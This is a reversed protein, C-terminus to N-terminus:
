KKKQAAAPDTPTQIKEISSDGILLKDGQKEVTYRVLYTDEAERLMKSTPEDYLKSSEKVTALVSYKKGKEIETVSSVAVNRPVMEYYKKNTSLWKIGNTQVQLAHGTLVESLQTTDRNRVATRKIKQWNEILSKVSQKMDDGSNAAPAADASKPPKTPKVTGPVDSDDPKPKLGDFMKAISSIPHPLSPRTEAAVPETVAEVNEVHVLLQGPEDAPQISVSYRGVSFSASRRDKLVKSRVKEFSANFDAIRAARTGLAELLFDTTMQVGLFSNATKGFLQLDVGTVQKQDASDIKITDNAADVLTSDDSGPKFPGVGPWGSGQVVPSRAFAEVSTLPASAVKRRIRPVGLIRGKSRDADSGKSEDTDAVAAKPSAEPKKGDNENFIQDMSGENNQAVAATSTPSSFAAAFFSIAIISVLSRSNKASM